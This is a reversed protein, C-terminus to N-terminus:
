SMNCFLLFLYAWGWKLPIWPSVTSLYKKWKDVGRRPLSACLKQTCYQSFTNRELSDTVYSFRIFMVRSVCFTLIKNEITKKKNPINQFIYKGILTIYWPLLHQVWSVLSGSYFPLFNYTPSLLELLEANTRHNCHFILGSPELFSTEIFFM